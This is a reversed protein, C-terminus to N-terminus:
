DCGLVNEFFASDLNEDQTIEEMKQSTKKKRKNVEWDVIVLIKYILIFM